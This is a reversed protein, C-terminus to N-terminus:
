MPSPRVDAHLTICYQIIFQPCKAATPQHSNQKQRKFIGIEAAQWNVPAPRYPHAALTQQQRQIPLCDETLDSPRYPSRAPRYVTNINYRGGESNAHQTTTTTTTM